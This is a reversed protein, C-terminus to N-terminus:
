ATAKARRAELAVLALDRYRFVAKMSSGMFGDHRYAALGKANGAEVLAVV